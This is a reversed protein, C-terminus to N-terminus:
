SDQPLSAEDVVWRHMDQSCCFLLEFRAVQENLEEVSTVNVIKFNHTSPKKALGRLIRYLSSSHLSLACVKRVMAVLPPVSQGVFCQRFCNNAWIVYLKGQTGWEKKIEKFRLSPVCLIHYLRDGLQLTEDM